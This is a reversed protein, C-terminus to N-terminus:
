ECIHICYRNKPKDSSLVLSLSLFSLTLSPPRDYNTQSIIFLNLVIDRWDVDSVGTGSVQLSVQTPSLGKYFGLFEKYSESRLRVNWRQHWTPCRFSQSPRRGCEKGPVMQVFLVLTRVFLPTSLLLGYTWTKTSSGSSPPVGPIVDRCVLFRPGRRFTTESPVLLTTRWIYLHGPREWTSPSERPPPDWSM